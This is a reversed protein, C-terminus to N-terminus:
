LLARHFWGSTQNTVSAAGTAGAKQHDELRKAACNLLKCFDTVSCFLVGDGSTLRYNTIPIHTCDLWLCGNGM